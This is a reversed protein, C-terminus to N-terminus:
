RWCRRPGSRITTPEAAVQDPEAEHPQKRERDPENNDHDLPGTQSTRQRAAVRHSGDGGAHGRHPDPFRNGKTLLLGTEVAPLVAAMASPGEPLDFADGVTSIAAADQQLLLKFAANQLLARGSHGTITAPPTRASCTRSTRPSSSCGWGTSARGSRWASWSPRAKRTSCSREVGRRRGAPPAQPGPGGSGVGDRHLGDRRRASAGAGAAAPRLRHDAGRQVLLDDGEDSLLNDCAAPPSPGCCGQSVPTTWVRRGSPVAYFDKFGTRERHSPTTARWPTTSPPAASRASLREGVM